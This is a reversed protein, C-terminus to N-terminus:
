RRRRAPGYPSQWAPRDTRRRQKRSRTRDEFPVAPVTPIADGNSDIWEGERLGGNARKFAEACAELAERFRRIGEIATALAATAAGTDISIVFTVEDRTYGHEVAGSRIDIDISAVGEVEEWGDGDEATGLPAIWLRPGSAAAPEPAPQSRMADPGVSSDYLAHDIQNLIDDTSTM